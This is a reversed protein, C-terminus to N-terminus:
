QVPGRYGNNCAVIAPTAPEIICRTAGQYVSHPAVLVKAAPPLPAARTVMRPAEYTLAVVIAGLAIGGLLYRGRKNSAM